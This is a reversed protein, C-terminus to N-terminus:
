PLPIPGVGVPVIYGRQFAPREALNVYWHRVEPYDDPM